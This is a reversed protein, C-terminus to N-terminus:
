DFAIRIGSLNAAFELGARGGHLEDAFHALRDRGRRFLDLAVIALIPSSIDLM